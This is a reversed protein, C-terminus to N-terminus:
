LEQQAACESSGRDEAVRVEARLERTSRLSNAVLCTHEAKDLARRCEDQHVGPAVTLVAKTVIHTFQTVGQARELVGEVTCTLHRWELKSARAIGRFTLIFCSAVAACLLSEPSWRDGPGGFEAPAASELEPLGSAAVQLSGASEGHASVVYRHPLPQM